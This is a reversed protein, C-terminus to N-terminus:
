LRETGDARYGDPTKFTNLVGGTMPTKVGTTGPLSLPLGLLSRVALYAFGEAELSDGDWGLADVSTVPVGLAARLGDMLVPNLRGGGAVHWSKPPQPLHVLSAAVARATFASLTAAGDAAGLHAYLATNWADRDLSKPPKEAFYPHDLLRGLIADDVRGQRALMGNEDCPRGLHLRAWDDLLANGPGTDFALIDGDAVLYTVNSVGGINLIASPKELSTALAQHYLPLLPAGQGGAAVDASRFDSVTDIGTLRALMIGNGIQWTFGQAPDHCITQGHFGTVDVDNPHIGTKGLLWDIAAAHARTMEIAAIAVRGDPDERLGLCARLRERLADDYPISVAGVREVVSRGDTRIMAADIGDLSTGSMLGISTYIKSNNMRM